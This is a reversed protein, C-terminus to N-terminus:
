ANEQEGERNVDESTTHDPQVERERRRKCLPCEPYGSIYKTKCVACVIFNNLKMEM